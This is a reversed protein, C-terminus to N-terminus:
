IKKFQELENENFEPNLQMQCEFFNQILNIKQTKPESGGEGEETKKRENQSRSNMVMTFM